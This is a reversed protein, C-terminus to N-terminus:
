SLRRRKNAWRAGDAVVRAKFRRAAEPAEPLHETVLGFWVPHLATASWWGWPCLNAEVFWPNPQWDTGPLYYPECADAIRELEACRAVVEDADGRGRAGLLILEGLMFAAGERPDALLPPFERCLRVLADDIAPRALALGDVLLSALLEHTALIFGEGRLVLGITATLVRFWRAQEDAGAHVWNVGVGLNEVLDFSAEIAEVGRALVAEFAAIYGYVGPDNMVHQGPTERRVQARALDLLERLAPPQVQM